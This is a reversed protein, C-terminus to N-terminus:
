RRLARLFSRYVAVRHEGRLGHLTVLTGVLLVLLGLALLSVLLPVYDNLATM